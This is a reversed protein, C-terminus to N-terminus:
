IVGGQKSVQITSYLSFCLIVFMTLAGVFALTYNFEMNYLALGWLSLTLFHILVGIRFDKAYFILGGLFILITTATEFSIGVQQSILIIGSHLSAM